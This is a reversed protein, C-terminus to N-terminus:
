RLPQADLGGPTPSDGARVAYARHGEARGVVAEACVAADRDKFVGFVTAGSGSLLAAEAGQRLLLSKIEGLVPYSPFLAAEFDNEMLPVVEDWSVSAASSLTHLAGSLPTVASRSGTLREYAWRTEIPFGPHVLVVWREGTLKLPTLREGRGQVVASPAFFFFPVDSGLEEGLRAMREASWGLALLRNLGLIAAAANGSGGGLGASVPIRKRLSIHLGIPMKAEALVREAARYILNRRDTPLSPQDSELRVGTSDPILRMTLDDHLAVTHMVSWIDHFGDPRRTLVKLILNVKAPARVRIEDNTM